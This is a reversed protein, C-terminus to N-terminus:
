KRGRAAAAEANTADVIAKYKDQGYQSIFDAKEKASSFDSLTRYTKGGSGGNGGSGGGSQQTGKLIHEKGPYQDILIALAEEFDALEGANKKSYIKDGNGYFGVPKGDEVRFNKGFVQETIDAPLLLKEKIFPSSAFRNSVILGYIQGDKEQVTKAMIDQVEKLKQELSTTKEEYVKRIEDKVKDVEGADILKKAALKKVQEIANFAAEPDEINRYKDRFANFGEETEKHKQRWTKEGAILDNIKKKAQPWNVPIETSDDEVWVPNGDEGLSVAEQASDGEGFKITKWPM